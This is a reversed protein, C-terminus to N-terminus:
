GYNFVFHLYNTSNVINKDSKKLKDLDPILTHPVLAKSVRLYMRPLSALLKCSCGSFTTFFYNPVTHMYM